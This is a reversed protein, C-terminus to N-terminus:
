NVEIAALYYLSGGRFAPYLEDNRLSRPGGIDPWPDLVGGGTINPQYGGGIYEIETLLVAHGRAGMVLPRDQALSNVIYTNDIAIIGSSLDMLRVVRSTFEEGDDSIWRRNMARTMTLDTAPMNVLSGYAQEVIREQSVEYGYYRFLMSITAAWCWQSQFQQSYNAAISDMPVQAVCQPGYYGPVCRYEASAKKPFLLTAGLAGAGLLLGRRALQNKKEDELTTEKEEQSFRRFISQEVIGCSWFSRLLFLGCM